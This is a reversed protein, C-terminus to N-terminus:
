FGLIFFCFVFCSKVDEVFVEVYMLYKIGDSLYKFLFELVGFLVLGKKFSYIEEVVCSLVVYKVCVNLFENKDEFMVIVKIYGM